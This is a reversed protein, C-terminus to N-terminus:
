EFLAKIQAAYACKGHRNRVYDIGAKSLGSLANPDKYFSAIAECYRTATVEDSSTAQVLVGTDLSTIADSIGGVDPAIVPLGQSMAELIMNPLGDFWSTYILADYDDFNIDGLTSFGGRYSAHGFDFESGPEITGYVDVSIPPSLRSLGSAIVPILSPRKQGAIRSAWLLRFTPTRNERTKTTVESVLAPLCVWKEAHVGFTRLDQHITSWNDSVLRDISQLTESLFITQWGSTALGGQDPYVDDCFRYYICSNDSLHHRYKEFFRHSFVSTKMHVRARPASAQIMRLALRDAQGETITGGLSALDIFVANPPLRDLWTHRAVPEGTIVLIHQDPRLQHLGHMVDLLYREGGGAVLYPMIFVDDFVKEGLKECIAFYSESASYDSSMNFESAVDRIVRLEISADIRNAASVLVKLKLRSLFNRKSHHSRFPLKPLKLWQNFHSGFKEIYVSPSFLASHPTELKVSSIRNQALMSQHSQRYFLITDPCYKPIVGQALANANFLWDEYAEGRKADLTRYRNATFVQKEAFCCSVFPHEDVISLMATQADFYQAIFNRKGFGIVWEPYLIVREPSAQATTFCQNFYNFSVLDDADHTSVYRGSAADVGDNRSLSLSGNNVEIVKVSDFSDMDLTGVVNKTIPDTNDLVLVIEISIQNLKAFAAAESLSEVTRAIYTAERHINLVISVDLM